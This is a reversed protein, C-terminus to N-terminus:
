EIVIEHPCPPNTDQWQTHWITTSDGDVANAGKGNEGATEESDVQVVKLTFKGVPVLAAKTEPVIVAAPTTKPAVSSTQVPASPRTSACGFGALVALVIAPVFIFRFNKKM